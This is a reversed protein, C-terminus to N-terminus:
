AQQREIYKIFPEKGLTEPQRLDAGYARAANRGLIAEKTRSRADGLAEFGYARRMDEPIELRRFAEIQWQPSGYWVSDTGWFVHDAGMQKILIGLLAAAHRPHSVACNAFATGIEAYVNNVGYTGPIEALDSVWDIRGTEEFKKMHSEPYDNLPKLASHYIIFDIDPWDQAAKPLDEVTAYRWNEFSTLYDNPLLGKHICLKTIGSKVMKEYVPYMLKEDDLRWPYRSDSLPDGVTYGKWSDPKLEEIARDIQDIWGPHGPAIVAHCYLRKCGAIENVIRRSQALQDNSLFWNQKSDAPAGSLLGIKTDSQVFVERLFNDFQINRFSRQEDRLDPNWHEAAYQRLDLLGQFRFDDHVFHLQSDFVLQDQIMAAKEQGREVDAAEAEDVSFFDGYVMNMALFAAALGSATRLFARRSLGQRPAYREALDATLAAVKRQAESQPPPNFEGNSWV